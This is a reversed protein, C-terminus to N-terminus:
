FGDESLFLEDNIDDDNRLFDSNKNYEREFGKKDLKWEGTASPLLWELDGSELLSEYLAKMEKMSM